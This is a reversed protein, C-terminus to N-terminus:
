LSAFQSPFSVEPAILRVELQALQKLHSYEDDYGKSQMTKKKEEV